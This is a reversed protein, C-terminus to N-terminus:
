KGERAADIAADIAGKGMVAMRDFLKDRKAREDYILDETLWRYREADKRLEAAEREAREVKLALADITAKCVTVSHEALLARQENADREREAREARERQQKAIEAHLGVSALNHENERCVREVAASLAAMAAQTAPLDNDAAFEWGTTALVQRVLRLIEDKDPQPDAGVPHLYLPTGDDLPKTLVGYAVGNGLTQVTAVPDASQPEFVVPDVTWGDKIALHYVGGGPGKVVWAVPTGPAASQPAAAIMARYVGAPDHEAESVIFGAACMGPTPEVPVLKWESM